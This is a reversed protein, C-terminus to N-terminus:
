RPSGGSRSSSGGSRPSSGSAAPRRVPPAAPRAPQAPQAGYKSIREREQANPHNALRERETKTAQGQLRARMVGARTLFGQTRNWTGESLAARSRVRHTARVLDEQRQLDDLQALRARDGSETALERLRNIRAVRDRHTAEDEVAQRVAPLESSPVDSFDSPDPQAPQAVQAAPRVPQAGSAEQPRAATGLCLLAAIPLAIDLKM